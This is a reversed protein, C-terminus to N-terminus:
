LPPFFFELEAVESMVLCSERDSLCAFTYVRLPFFFFFLCVSVLQSDACVCDGM